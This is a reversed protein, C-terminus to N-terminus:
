DPNAHLGPVYHFGLIPIPSDFKPVKHLDYTDPLLMNFNTLYTLKYTKHTM